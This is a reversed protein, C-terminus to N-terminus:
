DNEKRAADLETQLKLISKAWEPKGYERASAGLSQFFRDLYVDEDFKNAQRRGGVSYSDGFARTHALDCWADFLKRNESYEPMSSVLAKIEARIMKSDDSRREMKFYVLAGVAALGILIRFGWRGDM